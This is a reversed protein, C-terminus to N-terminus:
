LLMNYLYKGVLQKLIYLGNNSMTSLNNFHNFEIWINFGITSM